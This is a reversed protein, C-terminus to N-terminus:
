KQKRSSKYRETSLASENIGVKRRSQGNCRGFISGFQLDALSLSTSFSTTWQRVKTWRGRKVRQQLFEVIGIRWWSRFDVLTEYLKSVFVNSRKPAANELWQAAVLIGALDDLESHNDSDTDFGTLQECFSRVRKSFVELEEIWHEMLETNDDASFSSPLTRSALEEQLTERKWRAVRYADRPAPSPSTTPPCCTRDSPCM